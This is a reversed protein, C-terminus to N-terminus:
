PQAGAYRHAIYTQERNWASMGDVLLQWRQYVIELEEGKDPECPEAGCKEVNAEANVTDPIAEM